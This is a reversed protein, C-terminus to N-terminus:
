INKKYNIFKNLECYNRLEEIQMEIKKSSISPELCRNLYEVELPRICYKTSFIDQFINLLDYKSLAEITGLQILSTKIDKFYNTKQLIEHLKKCWELTTIGNWYHNVFGNILDGEKNNLFWSLLGKDSHQDIGIISVRIVLSNNRNIVAAEGLSKSWGYNDFADKDDILSYFSGKSGSFVCDTSPQILFHGSKLSNSLELPLISNCFFLEKSNDSKQKIRGICNFIISDPYTNLKQIFFYHNQEDFRDEFKIVEYGLNSFYSCVMQGLMGNPGLVIVKYNNL